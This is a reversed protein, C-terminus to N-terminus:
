KAKALKDKKCFRSEPDITLIEEEIPDGCEECIGYTGEQIKGLAIEVEGLRNKLDQAVALQNGVEEAEDTEEDFSDVDAGFDVPKESRKIEALLMVREKELKLKHEAIKEKNM